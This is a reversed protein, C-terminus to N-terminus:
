GGPRLHVGPIKKTLWKYDIVQINVTKTFYRMRFPNDATETVGGERSLPREPHPCKTTTVVVKLFNSSVLYTKEIQYSM